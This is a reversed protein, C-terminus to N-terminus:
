RDSAQPNESEEMAEAMFVCELSIDADCKPCHYRARGKRVFNVYDHSCPAAGSGQADEALPHKPYLPHMEDPPMDSSM